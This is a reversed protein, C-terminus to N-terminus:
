GPVVAATIAIAVAFAAATAVDVTRSRVLLGLCFKEPLTARMLAALGLAAALLYGGLRFHDFWTVLVSAAMVTLVVIFAFRRSPPVEWQIM